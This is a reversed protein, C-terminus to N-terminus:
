YGGTFTNVPTERDKMEIENELRDAMDELERSLHKCGYYPGMKEILSVIEKASALAKSHYEKSQEEYGEKIGLLKKRVVDPDMEGEKGAAFANLNEPSKMIYNVANQKDKTQRMSDIRSLVKRAVAVSIKVKKGNAFEVDKLGNLTISKRLQIQINELGESDQASSGDKRPRGRRAEDLDTEEKKSARGIDSAEFMKAMQGLSMTKFSKQIVDTVRFEISNKNPIVEVDYKKRDKGTLTFTKAEDLDAEEPLRKRITSGLAKAKDEADKRAAAISSGTGKVVNGNFTAAKYSYTAEDLEEFDEETLEFGEKMAMKTATAYMVDKAREGYKKKFDPMKKKMSKVIEERKKMQADSMESAMKQDDMSPKTDVEDKKGSLKKKKGNEEEDDDDDDEDDDDEDDMEDESEKMAKSIAQRRKHLYEDSDDVDGDNDIDKDKRDSYKGKLAKQDVPDMKKEEVPQGSLISRVADVLSDSKRFPNNSDFM